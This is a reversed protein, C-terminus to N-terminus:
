ARKLAYASRPAAFIPTQAQVLPTNDDGDKGVAAVYASSSRMAWNANLYLAFTLWAVYPIYLGMPIAWLAGTNGTVAGAAIMFILVLISSVLLLMAVVLAPIPRRLSFFLLPWVKAMLVNVVFTVYVALFTWDDASASFKLFLFISVVLLSKLIFWVVPFVIGPVRVAQIRTGEERYWEQDKRRM